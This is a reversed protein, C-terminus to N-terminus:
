KKGVLEEGKSRLEVHAAIFAEVVTKTACKGGDLISMTVQVSKLGDDNSDPDFNIMMLRAKMNNSAAKTSSINWVSRPLVITGILQDDESDTQGNYGHYSLRYQTKSGSWRELTITGKVHVLKGNAYKARLSAGFSITGRVEGSLATVAVWSGHSKKNRSRYPSLM